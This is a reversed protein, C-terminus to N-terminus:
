LEDPATLEERRVLLELKRPAGRRRLFPVEVLAEHV